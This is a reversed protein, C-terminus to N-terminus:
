HHTPESIEEPHHEIPVIKYDTFAFQVRIAIFDDDGWELPIESVNIPYAHLFQMKSAVAGTEALKEVEITTQYENPFNFDYSGSGHVFGIWNLFYHWEALFEDDTYFSIELDTVKSQYPIESYPGYYRFTETELSHGSMSAEYAMFKLGESVPSSALGPPHMINVMFRSSKAPEIKLKSRFESIDMSVM